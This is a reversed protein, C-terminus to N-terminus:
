AAKNNDILDLVPPKLPWAFHFDGVHKIMKSLDHDCWIESGHQRLKSSFYYDQDFYDGREPSYVVEFHPRPIHRIKNINALFCGGGMWGIQELGFKNTSDIVQGDLGMCVGAIQTPSKRRYNATVVDKDHNILQHVTDIPFIMDDDLSLWHTFQGQVAKHLASERAQSLCSAQAMLDPYVHTLKYGPIGAKLLHCNLGLFSAGFAPKWERCTPVSILLRVEEM